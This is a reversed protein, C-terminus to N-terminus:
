KPRKARRKRNKRRNFEDAPEHHSYWDMWEELTAVVKRKSRTRLERIPRKWEGVETGDNERYARIAVLRFRGSAQHSPYWGLDILVGAREHEAMYIDEGFDWSTDDFTKFKAEVDFFQNYLVRWDQPIRLPQLPRGTSSEM